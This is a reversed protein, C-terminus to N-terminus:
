PVQLSLGGPDECTRVQSYTTVVQVWDRVKTLEHNRIRPSGLLGLCSRANEGHAASTATTSFGRSTVGKTVSLQASERDHHAPAAPQLGLAGSAGSDSGPSERSERQGSVRLTRSFAARNVSLSNENEGTVEPRSLLGGRWRTSLPRGLIAGVLWGRSEECGRLGLAAKVKTRDHPPLSLEASGPTALTSTMQRGLLPAQLAAV